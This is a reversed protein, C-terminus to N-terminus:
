IVDAFTRETRRFYSWGTILLLLAVISSVGILGWSPTTGLMMARFAEVLGAVPNLGYVVRFRHPVLTSLYAIPSAYFLLQSLFTVTYKVDRYTVSLSSLWFAVGLSVTLAFICFVPLLVVSVTPAQGYVSMVVLLTVFALGFDVFGALVAAAPIIIRPFYVKTVLDEKDVLSGAAQTLAYVFFTWPVLAALVVLPYPRGGSPVKALVGLFVAFVAMTLLPQLVAWLAGLVTQKYRVKIDRWTLTLLTERARWIERLQMSGLGRTAQIYTASKSSDVTNSVAEMSRLRGTWDSGASERM